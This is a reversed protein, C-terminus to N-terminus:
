EGAERSASGVQTKARKAVDGSADVLVLIGVRASTGDEPKRLRGVTQEASPEGAQKM